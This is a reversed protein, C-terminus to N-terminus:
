KEENLQIRSGLIATGIRVMTAGEKIAAIYDGSTGMSLHPLIFRPDEEQIWDRLQRLKAFFPRAFEPDESWPPMTMLGVIVVSPLAAVQRALELIAPWRNRQQAPLGFKSEEGSVNCELLIPLPSAGALRAHDLKEAIRFTDVSHVMGFRAAVIGAKRSQIHGIMHWTPQEPGLQDMKEAAEEPYNEGFTDIGAQMAASIVEVSKRKSVVIVKVSDGRNRYKLIADAVQEQVADYNHRIEEVRGEMM